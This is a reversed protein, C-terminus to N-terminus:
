RRAKKVPLVADFTNPSFRKSAIDLDAPVEFRDEGNEGHVLPIEYRNVIAGSSHVSVKITAGANAMMCLVLPTNHKFGDLVTKADIARSGKACVITRDHSTMFVLKEKYTKKPGAGEEVIIPVRVRTFGTTMLEIIGTATVKVLTDAMQSFYKGDREIDIFNGNLLMRIPADFRIVCRIAPIAVYM